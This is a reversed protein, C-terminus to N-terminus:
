VSEMEESVRVSLLQLISDASDLNSRGKTGEPYAQLLIEGSFIDGQYVGAPIDLSACGRTPQGVESAKSYRIKLRDWFERDASKAGDKSDKWQDFLPKFKRYIAAVDGRKLLNFQRQPLGLFTMAEEGTITREKKSLRVPVGEPTFHVSDEQPALLHAHKIAELSVLEGEPADDFLQDEINQLTKAM